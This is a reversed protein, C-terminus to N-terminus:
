TPLGLQDAIYGVIRTAKDVVDPGSKGDRRAADIAQIISVADRSPIGYRVAVADALEQVRKAREVLSWVLDGSTGVEADLFLNEARDAATRRCSRGHDGGSM